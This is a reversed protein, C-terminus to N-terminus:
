DQVLTGISNYTAFGNANLYGTNSFMETGGIRPQVLFFPSHLTVVEQKLAEQKM